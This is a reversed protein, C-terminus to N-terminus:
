EHLGEILGAAIPTLFDIARTTGEPIDIVATFDSDPLGRLETESTHKVSANAEVSARRLRWVQYGSQKLLAAENAFRVDTLVVAAVPEGGRTPGLGREPIYQGVERVSYAMSLALNIWADPGIAPCM